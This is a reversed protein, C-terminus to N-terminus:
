VIVSCLLPYYAWAVEAQSLIDRIPFKLEPLVPIGMPRASVKESSCQSRLSRRAWNERRERRKCGAKLDLPAGQRIMSWGEKREYTKEGIFRRLM